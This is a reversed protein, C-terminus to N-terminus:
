AAIINRLAEALTSHFADAADAVREDYWGNMTTILSEAGPHDREEPFTAADLRELLAIAGEITTPATTSLAVMLDSIRESVEGIALQVNIWELADTCGEPPWRGEGNGGFHISRTTKDHPLGEDIGDKKRYLASEQNAARDYAEILAFTPDATLAIAGLSKDVAAAAPAAAVSIGALVARRSLPKHATMVEIEGHSAPPHVPM